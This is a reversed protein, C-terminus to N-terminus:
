KKSKWLFFGITAFIWILLRANFMTGIIMIIIYWVLGVCVDNHADWSGSETRLFVNQPKPPEPEEYYVPKIIKIYEEYKGSFHGNNEFLYLEGQQHTFVFRGGGTFEAERTYTEPSTWRLDRSLPIKAITGVGYKVGKFEFYQKVSM